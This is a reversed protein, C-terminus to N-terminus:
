LPALSRLTRERATPPWTLAFLAPGLVRRVHASVLAWSAAQRAREPSSWGLRSVFQAVSVAGGDTFDDFSRPPAKTEEREIMSPCVSLIGPSTRPAVRDPSCAPQTETSM